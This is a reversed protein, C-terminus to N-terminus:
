RIHVAHLVLLTVFFLILSAAYLAERSLITGQVKKLNNIIPKRNLIIHYLTFILFLIGLMNHVSMWIHRRVTLGEFGLIHNMYGSFPLGIFSLLMGTSIFARTNFKKKAEM